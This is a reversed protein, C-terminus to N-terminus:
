WAADEGGRKGVSDRERMQGGKRMKGHEGM